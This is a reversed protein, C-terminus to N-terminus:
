HMLQVRIYHYRTPYMYTNIDALYGTYWGWISTNLNPRRPQLEVLLKAYDENDSECRCDVSPQLALSPKQCPVREAQFGQRQYQSEPPCASLLQSCCGSRQCIADPVKWFQMSASLSLIQCKRPYNCIVQWISEFISTLFDLTGTLTVNQMDSFKQSLISNFGVIDRIYTDSTCLSDCFVSKQLYFITTNYM